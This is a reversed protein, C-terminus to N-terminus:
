LIDAAESILLAAIWKNRRGLAAVDVAKDGVVGIHRRLAADRDAPLLTEGIRGGLVGGITKTAAAVTVATSGVIAIHSAAAIRCFHATAAPRVTNVADAARFRSLEVMAFNVESQKM